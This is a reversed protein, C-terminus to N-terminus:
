IDEFFIGWMAPNIRAGRTDAKVNVRVPEAATLGLIAGGLVLTLLLRTRSIWMPFRISEARRDREGEGWGEGEPLPHTRRCSLVHYRKTRWNWRQRFYSGRRPSLAPTLPFSNELQMTGALSLPRKM